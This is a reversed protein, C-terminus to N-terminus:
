APPPAFEALAEAHTFSPDSMDEYCDPDLPHADEYAHCEPHMHMTWVCDDGYNAGARADYLDGPNIIDGCMVCRHRKKARVGNKERVFSM